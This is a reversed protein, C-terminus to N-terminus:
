RYQNLLNKVITEFMKSVILTSIVLIENFRSARVICWLYRHLVSRGSISYLKKFIRLYCFGWVM